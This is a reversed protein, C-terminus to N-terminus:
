KNEGAGKEGIKLGLGLTKEAWKFLSTVPYTTVISYWAVPVFCFFFRKASYALVNYICDWKYDIQYLVFYYGLISIVLAILM